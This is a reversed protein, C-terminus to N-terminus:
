QLLAAVASRGHSVALERAAEGGRGKAARDLGSELLLRTVELEGHRAAHHM